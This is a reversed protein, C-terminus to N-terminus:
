QFFVVSSTLGFTSSRGICPACVSVSITDAGCNGEGCIECVAGVTAM